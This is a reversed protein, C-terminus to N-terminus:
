PKEAAMADYKAICEKCGIEDVEEIKCWNSSLMPKGCLTRPSFGSQAIHATKSWVDGKGGFMHFGSKLDKTKM